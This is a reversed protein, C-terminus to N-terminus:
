HFRDHLDGSPNRRSSLSDAQVTWPSAGLRRLGDTFRQSEALRGYLVYDDGDYM